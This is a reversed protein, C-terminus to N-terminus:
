YDDRRTSIKWGPAEHVERYKWIKRAALYEEDNKAITYPLTIDRYNKWIRQQISAQPSCHESLHRLIRLIRSETSLNPETLPLTHIEAERIYMYCDCDDLLEINVYDLTELYKRNGFSFITQESKKAKWQDEQPYPILKVTYYLERLLSDERILRAIHVMEPIQKIYINKRIQIEIANVAANLRDATISTKVQRGCAMLLEYVVLYKELKRSDPERIGFKEQLEEILEQHRPHYLRFRFASQITEEAWYFFKRNEEYLFSRHAERKVTQVGHIIKDPIQLIKLVDRIKM